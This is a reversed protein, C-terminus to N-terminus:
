EIVAVYTPMYMHFGNIDISTKLVLLVLLPYVVVHCMHLLLHLVTLFRAM